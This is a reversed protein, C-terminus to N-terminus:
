NKGPPELAIGYNPSLGGQTTDILSGGPISYEEGIGLGLNSDWVDKESSNLAIGFPQGDTPVTYIPSGTWPKKYAYITGGSGSGGDTFLLDDKKDFAVGSPFSDTQPLQTANTQGAPFEEVTHSYGDVILDGKSDSAIWYLGSDYSDTLTKTCTTSGKPIVCITSSDYEVAYVTGKPDVTIDSVLAGVTLTAYPSLKGKHFVVVNDSGYNAAYLDGNKTVYLGLPESLSNTIQGIPAQNKGKQSYINIANSGFVGIYLVNSSQIAPSM